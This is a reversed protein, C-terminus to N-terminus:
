HEQRQFHEVSRQFELERVDRGKIDYANVVLEWAAAFRATADQAQWFKRDFSRDCEELKCFREMVLRPSTSPSSTNSLTNHTRINNM